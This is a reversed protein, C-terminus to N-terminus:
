WPRWGRELAYGIAYALNFLSVLLILYLVAYSTRQVVKARRPM